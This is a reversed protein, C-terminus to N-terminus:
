MQVVTSRLSEVIKGLSTILNTSVHNKNAGAVLDAEFADFDSNSAKGNM